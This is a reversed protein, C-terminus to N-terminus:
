KFDLLRWKHLGYSMLIETDKKIDKTAIVALMCDELVVIKCNSKLESLKLYLQQEKEDGGHFICGDNILHGCYTHTFDEPNASIITSQNINLISKTYHDQTEFKGDRELTDAPYLCILDKIKFDKDAIVCKGKTNEAIKVYRMSIEMKNILLMNKVLKTMQVKEEEVVNQTMESILSKLDELLSQLTIETM